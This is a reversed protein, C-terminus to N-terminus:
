VTNEKTIVEGHQLHVNKHNKVPKLVTNCFFSFQLINMLYNYVDEFKMKQTVCHPLGHYLGPASGPCFVIIFVM